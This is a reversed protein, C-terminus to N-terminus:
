LILREVPHRHDCRRDVVGAATLRATDVPRPGAADGDASAGKLAAVHAILSDFGIRLTAIEAASTERVAEEILGLGVFLTGAVILAASPVVLVQGILLGTLFSAILGVAGLLIVLAGFIRM